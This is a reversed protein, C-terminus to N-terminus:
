IGAPKIALAHQGCECLWCDAHQACWALVEATGSFQATGATGKSAPQDGAGALLQGLQAGLQSNAVNALAERARAVQRVDKSKLAM